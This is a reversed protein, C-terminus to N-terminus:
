RVAERNKEEVMKQIERIELMLFILYFGLLSITLALTHVGYVRILVFFAALLISMRAAMGGLVVKLFTSYSKRMAMSASYMGASVNLVSLITGLIAGTVVDASGHAWLPYAAIGWVILVASGVQLLFSSRIKM